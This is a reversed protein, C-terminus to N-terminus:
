PIRSHSAGIMALSYVSQQYLTSRVEAALQQAPTQQAGVASGNRWGLQQGAQPQEGGAGGAGWQQHKSHGATHSGSTGPKQRPPHQQERSGAREDGDCGAPRLLPRSQPFNCHWARMIPQVKVRVGKCRSQREGTLDIGAAAAAARVETAVRPDGGAAAAAAGDDSHQPQLRVRAASSASASARREKLRALAAKAGVADCDPFKSCSMNLM